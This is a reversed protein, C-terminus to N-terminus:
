NENEVFLGPTRFYDLLVPSLDNSQKEYESATVEVSPVFMRVAEIPYRNKRCWHRRGYHHYWLRVMWLVLLVCDVGAHKDHVGAGANGVVLLAKSVVLHQCKSM